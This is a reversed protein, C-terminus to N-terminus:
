FYSNATRQLATRITYRYLVLNLFLSFTLKTQNSEAETKCAELRCVTDNKRELPIKKLFSFLNRLLLLFTNYLPPFNFLELNKFSNKNIKASM